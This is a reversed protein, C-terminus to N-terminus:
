FVAPDALNATGVQGLRARKATARDNMVQLGWFVVDPRTDCETIMRNIAGETFLMGIRHQAQFVSHKIGPPLAGCTKCNAYPCTKFRKGQWAFAMKGGCDGDSPAVVLRPDGGPKEQTLLARRAHVAPLTISGFPLVGVLKEENGKPNRIADNNTRIHVRALSVNVLTVPDSDDLAVRKGEVMKFLASSGAPFKGMTAQAEQGVPDAKAAGRGNISIPM